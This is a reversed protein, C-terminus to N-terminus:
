TGLHAGRRFVPCLLLVKLVTNFSLLFTTSLLCLPRCVDLVTTAITLDAPRSISEKAVRTNVHVFFVLLTHLDSMRPKAVILCFFLVKKKTVKSFLFSGKVEELLQCISVKVLSVRLKSVTLLRKLKGGRCLGGVRPSLKDGRKLLVTSLVTNRAGKVRDM